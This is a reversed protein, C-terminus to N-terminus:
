GGYRLVRRAKVVAEGAPAAAEVVGTVDASAAGLAAQHKRLLAHIQALRVDLDQIRRIATQRERLRRTRELELAGMQFQRVHREKSHVGCGLVSSLTRIEQVRRVPIAM